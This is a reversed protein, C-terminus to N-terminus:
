KVNTEKIIIKNFFIDLYKKFCSLQNSRLKERLKKKKRKIPRYKNEFIEFDSPFNKM